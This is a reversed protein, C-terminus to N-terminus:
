SGLWRDVAELEKEGIEGYEKEFNKLAILAARRRLRRAAAEALWGSVSTHEQEAAAKVARALDPSLSIALKKVVSM